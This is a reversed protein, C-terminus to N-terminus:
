VPAGSICIDAYGDAFFDRPQQRFRQVVAVLVDNDLIFAHGRLAKMLGKTDSNFELRVRCFCPISIDAMVQVAHEQGGM